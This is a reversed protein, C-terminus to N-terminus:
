DKNKIFILHFISMVSGIDIQFNMGFVVGWIKPSFLHFCKESQALSLKEM